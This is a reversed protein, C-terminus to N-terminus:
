SVFRLTVVVVLEAARHPNSVLQSCAGQLQASCILFDLMCLQLSELGEQGSVCHDAQFRPIAVILSRFSATPTQRSHWLAQKRAFLPIQWARFDRGHYEVVPKAMCLDRRQQEVMTEATEVRCGRLRRRRQAEALGHM